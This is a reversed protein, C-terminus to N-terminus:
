NEADAAPRIGNARDVDRIIGRQTEVIGQCESILTQLEGTSAANREAAVESRTVADAARDVHEEAATVEREGSEVESRASEHEDKLREVTRITADSDTTTSSGRKCSHYVGNIILMISVIAVLVRSFKYYFIEKENM